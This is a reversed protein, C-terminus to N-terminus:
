SKFIEWYDIEKILRLFMCFGGSPASKQSSQCAKSRQGPEPVDLPTASLVRGTSASALGKIPDRERPQKALGADRATERSPANGKCKM